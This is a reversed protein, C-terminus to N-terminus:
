GILGHCLLEPKSDLLRSRRYIEILENSSEAPRCLRSWAWVATISCPSTNYRTIDGNVDIVHYKSHVLGVRAHKSLVEAKAAINDPLM